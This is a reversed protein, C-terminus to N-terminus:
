GGAGGAQRALVVVAGIAQYRTRNIEEVKYRVGKFVLADKTTPPGVIDAEQFIVKLDGVQIEFEDEHQDSTKWMGVFAPVAPCETRPDRARGTNRDVIPQGGQTWVFYDVCNGIQESNLVDGFDEQM